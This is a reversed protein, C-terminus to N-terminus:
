QLVDGEKVKRGLLFDHASMRKGGEAQLETINVYGDGCKVILGKIPQACVVQGCVGEAKYDVVDCKFIKLMKGNLGTFAVPWPNMGLVFCKIKKASLTFDLKADQKKIMKVYTAKTADQKVPTVLGKELRDLTEVLIEAGLESLRDFLEGATENEGVATRKVALIDGSDIGAETKMITVGTEKDGNIVAYQIPAAGRYKPLLSGHVNIIGYPAIDIIEQSLIQGFACTVMADPALKKLEEVGQVRIKDFQLVKIGKELAFVKVPSPTPVGKRGVPKDPQTVVAIVEHLSGILAQLSKVAFDPTGLFVIKM